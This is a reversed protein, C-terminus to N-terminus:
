RLRWVSLSSNAAAVSAVQEFGRQILAIREFSPQAETVVIVSNKPPNEPIQEPDVFSARGALSAFRPQDMYFRWIGEYRAPYFVLWVPAPTQTKDLQSLQEALGSFNFPDRRDFARDGNGFYDAAFLGFSVPVLATLAIAVARTSTREFLERVAISSLLVGFPLLLLKRETMGPTAIAIAGIPAVLFGIVLLMTRDSRRMSIFIGAPVLLLLPTAFMGATHTGMVPDSSNIFFLNVPDFSVWYFGLYNMLRYFHLFSYMDGSLGYRDFIADTVSPHSSLWLVLALLIPIFGALAGLVLRYRKTYVATAVTLGFLTPMLVWGSIHTFMGVGLLIGAGIALALRSTDLFRWVCWLWGMAVVVPLLYDFAQRSFVLLSPTWAMLAATLAAWDRRRHILKALEYSLWVCCIGTLALPLRMAWVSVGFAKFSVAMAYFLMPQFWLNGLHPDPSVLLPLSVGNLDHGSDALPRAHMAFWAEDSHVGKPVDSLGWLYPTALVVVFAIARFNRM